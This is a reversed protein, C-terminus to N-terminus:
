RDQQGLHQHDSKGSRRSRTSFARQKQDGIHQRLEAAEEEASKTYNGQESLDPDQPEDNAERASYISTRLPAWDPQGSADLVVGDDGRAYKDDPTPSRLADSEISRSPPASEDQSSDGNYNLASALGDATVWGNCNKGWSNNLMYEHNSTKGSKGNPMDRRDSIVVVHAGGSHCGIMKCDVLVYIIVPQSGNKEWAQDFDHGTKVYYIRQDKLHGECCAGMIMNPKGRSFSEEVVAMGDCSGAEGPRGHETAEGTFSDKRVTEGSDSVNVERAQDQTYFKPPSLGQLYYNPYLHNIALVFQDREGGNIVEPVMAVAEEVVGAASELGGKLTEVSYQIKHGGTTAGLTDGTQNHNLALEITTPNAPNPNNVYVLGDSATNFVSYDGVKNAHGTFLNPDMSVGNLQLARNEDLPERSLAVILHESGPNHDFELAGNQPLPYECGARWTTTKM